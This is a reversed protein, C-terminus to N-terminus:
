LRILQARVAMEVTMGHAGCCSIIRRLGPIEQDQAAASLDRM